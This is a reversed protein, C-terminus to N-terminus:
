IKHTIHERKRNKVWWRSQQDSGEWLTSGIIEFRSPHERTKDNINFWWCQEDGTVGDDTRQEKKCILFIVYTVMEGGWDKLIEKRVKIM